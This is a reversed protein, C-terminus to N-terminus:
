AKMRSRRIALAGAVLLILIVLFILGGVVEQLPTTALECSPPRCRMRLPVLLWAWGALFGGVFGLCAAVMVATAGLQVRTGAIVVLFPIMVVVAALTALGL